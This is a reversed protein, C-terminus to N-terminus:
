AGAPGAETPAAPDAASDAAGEGPVGPAEELAAPAEVPIEVPVSALHFHTARDPLADFVAAFRVSGGGPIESSALRTAAADRLPELEEYPLTRLTDFEVGSGAIATPWEDLRAEGDLLGVEIRLNPAAPETGPNLLDGSVVYLTGMTATEVWLGKVNAARMPGIEVFAPARVAPAFSDRLGIYAGIGILGCVLTWALANFIRGVASAAANEKLQPWDQRSAADEIADRESEFANPAAGAAGFPDAPTCPADSSASGDGFFDWSEPDEINEDEKAPTPIASSAGAPPETAADPEALSSFDEVSGFAAERVGEVSEPMPEAKDEDDELAIGDVDDEAAHSADFPSADEIPMSSATLDNASLEAADDGADSFDEAPEDGGHHFGGAAAPDDALDISMDNASDHGLADAAFGESSLEDEEDDDDYPPLDENFEWDDEEDDIFDEDATAGVTHGAISDGPNSSSLDETVSPPPVAEHQVADAVAAEVGQAQSQAPNQLFFAHKCRSCRVRIGADPIRAADLQFRTGCKRCEVVM